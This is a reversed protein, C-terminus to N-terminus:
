KKDGPIGICLKIPIVNLHKGSTDYSTDHLKIFHDFVDFKIRCDYNESTIHIILTCNYKKVFEFIEDNIGLGPKGYESPWKLISGAVRFPSEITFKLVKSDAVYIVEQGGLNLKQPRTFM